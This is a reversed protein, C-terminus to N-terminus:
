KKIWEGKARPLLANIHTMIDNMETKFKEVRRKLHVQAEPLYEIYGDLTAVDNSLVRKCHEDM